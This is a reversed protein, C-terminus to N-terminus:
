FRWTPEISMAWTFKSRLETSFVREIPVSNRKCWSVSIRPDNYNIKSTGLSVNKTEVKEEVKLKEKGLREEMKAITDKTAEASVPFKKKLGGPTSEGEAHSQLGKKGKKVLGLHQNLEKIYDEMEKLKMELKELKVDFDKNVAKQHNCLIAVKKNAETYVKFKEEVSLKQDIVEANLERDLTFSANFTRFVKATLGEMLGHFYDNLRSPNVKDFLDEDPKKGDSFAAVNKCVIEEVSITNEYRMSDKGLFDFKIQNGELVKVHEVRLSCCGVTDAEMEDNKENGVRLALKDILFAVTGLQSEFKDKSKILGMYNSRVKSIEEKLRRAKEYKKMDNLGKLRSNASLFFYKYSFNIAEDKYFALWTVKPDHVVDKWARGPVDCKPVPADESVNITVDEPFTRPKFFGSKPHVGRGKFLTPPEIMYGGLKERYHDLIAFGYINDKAEKEKKVKEKQEQTWNKREQQEAKKEEKRKELFRAINSFDFLKFERELKDDFSSNFLSAFNNVYEEKTEWETGLGQCWYVALEEQIPKLSVEKGDYLIKHGQPEYEAPFQVGHHELYTWNAGNEAEENLDKKEWWKDSAALEGASARLAKPLKRKGLDGSDVKSM